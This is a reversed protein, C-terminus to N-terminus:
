QRITNRFSFIMKLTQRICDVTTGVAVATNGKISISYYNGDILELGKDMYDMWTSGNYHAVYGYGGCIMIDNPGNGRISYTYYAPLPIEKWSNENSYRQYLGGGGAYEIFNNPFWVTVMSWSLGANPCETVGQPSISFIKKDKVDFIESAIALVKSNNGWM